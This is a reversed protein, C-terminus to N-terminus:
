QHLGLFAGVCQRPIPVGVWGDKNQFSPVIVFVPLCFGHRQVSENTTARDLHKQIGLVLVATHGERAFEVSAFGTEPNARIARVLDRHLCLRVIWGVVPRCETEDMAPQHVVLALKHIADSM